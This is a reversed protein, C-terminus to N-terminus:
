LILFYIIQKVVKKSFKERNCFSISFDGWSTLYCGKFITLDLPRNGVRKGTGVALALVKDAPTQSNFFPFGDLKIEAFITAFSEGRVGNPSFM